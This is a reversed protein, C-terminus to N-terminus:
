FCTCKQPFYYSRCMISSGWVLPLPITIMFLSFCVSSYIFVSLVFCNELNWFFCVFLVFILIYLATEFVFEGWFLLQVYVWCAWWWSLTIISSLFMFKCWSFSSVIKWYACNFRILDTNYWSALCRGLNSEESFWLVCNSVLDFKNIIYFWFLYCNTM